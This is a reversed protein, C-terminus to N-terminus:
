RRFSVLGRTVLEFVCRSAENDSLRLAVAIERLDRRGDIAHFLARLIPDLYDDSESLRIPVATLVDVLRRTSRAAAESAAKLREESDRAFESPEFQPPKTTLPNSPM